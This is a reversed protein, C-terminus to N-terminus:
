VMELRCLNVWAQKRKESSIDTRSLRDAAAILRDMIKFAFPDEYPVLKMALQYFPVTMFELGMVDAYFKIELQTATDFYSFRKSLFPVSPSPRLPSPGYCAFGHKAVFYDCIAYTIDHM